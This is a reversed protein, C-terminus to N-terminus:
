PHANYKYRITGERVQRDIILTNNNHYTVNMTEEVINCPTVVRLKNGPQYSYQGKCVEGGSLDRKEYDVSPGFQLTHAYLLPVANWVFHGGNVYGDYYETLLWKGTLDDPCAVDPKNCSTNIFLFAVMAFLLFNRM